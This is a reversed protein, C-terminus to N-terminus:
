ENKKEKYKQFYQNIKLRPMFFTTVLSTYLKYMLTTLDNKLSM